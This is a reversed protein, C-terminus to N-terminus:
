KAALGAFNYQIGDDVQVTSACKHACNMYRLGSISRDVEYREDCSTVEKMGKSEICISTFPMYTSFCLGSTTGKCGSLKKM